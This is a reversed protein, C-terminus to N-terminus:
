WTKGGWGTRREGERECIKGSENRRARGGEGAKEKGTVDKKQAITGESGIRGRGEWEGKTKM